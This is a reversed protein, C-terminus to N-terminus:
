GPSDRRRLPPTPRRRPSRSNSRGACWATSSSPCSRARRRRRPAAASCRAPPTRSASRPRRCNPRRRRGVRHVSAAHLEAQGVRRAPRRGRARRAGRRADVDGAHAAARMELMEMLVTEATLDATVRRAPASMVRSIPVDVSLGAAVVRTRLDRDTFIGLEGDPLRILAYSVHHETMKVVADRVSITPRCWCCTATCWSASRDPQRRRSGACAPQGPTTNWASSALFALGAPKAFQARVQEGPLRILTSPETARAVFEM